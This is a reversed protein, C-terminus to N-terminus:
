LAPPAPPWSGPETDQRTSVPRGDKLVVSAGPRQALRSTVQEGSVEDEDATRGVLEANPLESVEGPVSSDVRLGSEAPTAACSTLRAHRQSAKVTEPPPPPAESPATGGPLVGALPLQQAESERLRRESTRGM